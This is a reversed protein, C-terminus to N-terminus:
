KLKEWLGPIPCNDKHPFKINGVSGEMPIDNTAGDCFYCHWSLVHNGVFNIASDLLESLTDADVEIKKTTVETEGLAGSYPM